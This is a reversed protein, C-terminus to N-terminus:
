NHKTLNDLANLGSMAIRRYGKIKSADSYAQRVIDFDSMQWGCMALLMRSKGNKKDAKKLVAVAKSYEGALYLYSGEKAYLKKDGNNNLKRIISASKLHKGALSYHEALHMKEDKSKSITAMTEAARLAAGAYSYVDALSKIDNKNPSKISYAVELSSAAAHFKEMNLQVQALLKWMKDDNQNRNLYKTLLSSAGRWKKLEMKVSVALKIWEAKVGKTKLLQTLLKDASRMDHKLYMSVASRFLFKNDGTIKYLEYFLTKASDYIGLEYAALAANKCLGEDKPYKKHGKEFQRFAMKKDGINYYANGMLLYVLHSDNKGKDKIRFDKLEKIASQFKSEKSMKQAKYLAKALERNMKPRKEENAFSTVSM